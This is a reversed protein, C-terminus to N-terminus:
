ASPYDPFHRAMHERVREDIERERRRVQDPDPLEQYISVGFTTNFWVRRGWAWPGTGLAGLRVPRWAWWTGTTSM